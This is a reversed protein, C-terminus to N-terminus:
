LYNEYFVFDDLHMVPIGMLNGTADYWLFPANDYASVIGKLNTLEPNIRKYWSCPAANLEYVFHMKEVEM